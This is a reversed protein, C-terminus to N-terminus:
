DAEVSFADERFFPRRKITETFVQTDEESMPETLDAWLSMVEDVDPKSAEELDSLQKLWQELIADDVGDIKQLIQERITM